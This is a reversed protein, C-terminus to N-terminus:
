LGYREKQVKFKDEQTNVTKGLEMHSTGKTLMGEIWMSSVHGPSEALELDM